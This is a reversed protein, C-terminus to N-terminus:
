RTIEKEEKTLFTPLFQEHVSQVRFAGAYLIHKWFNRL